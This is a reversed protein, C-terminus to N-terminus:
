YLPTGGGELRVPLQSEAVVEQTLRVRGSPLVLVRAGAPAGRHVGAFHRRQAQRQSVEVPLRRLRSRFRFLLLVPGGRGAEDGIGAFEGRSQSRREIGEFGRAQFAAEVESGEA